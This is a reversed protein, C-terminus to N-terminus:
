NHFKTFKNFDINGGSIICVINKGTVQETLASALSAAGAGESIIHHKNFLISIASKVQDITSITPIDVISEIVDRISPTVEPTGIADVISKQVSKFSSDKNILLRYLPHSTEPEVSYIKINSHYKKFYGAVGLTLGGVGFHIVIADLEPLDAHIEKAITQYGTTLLLDNVPHIFYGPNEPYRGEQVIKWLKEYPLEIINASLSQITKIKISPASDPALITCPINNKKALYAVAQGMNGASAAVLGNQLEITSLNNIINEM